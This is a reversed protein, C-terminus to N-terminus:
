VLEKYGVKGNNQERKELLIDVEDGIEYLQRSGFEIVLDNDKRRAKYWNWDVKNGEQGTFSGDKAKLIELKM